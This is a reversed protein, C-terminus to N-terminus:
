RGTPQLLCQACSEAAHIAARDLEKETLDQPCKVWQVTMAHIRKFAKNLAEIHAENTWWPRSERPAIKWPNPPNGSGSPDFPRCFDELLVRALLNRADRVRRPPQDNMTWRPKGIRPVYAQHILRGKIGAKSAASGIYVRRGRESFMYLGPQTPVDDRYTEWEEVRHAKASALDKAMRLLVTRQTVHIEM